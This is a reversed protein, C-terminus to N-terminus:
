AIDRSWKSKLPWSFRFIRQIWIKNFFLFYLYLNKKINIPSHYTFSLHIIPSHYTFSLHILPSHYTFSLHIIPSHYHFRVQRMEQIKQGGWFGCLKARIWRQPSRIFVNWRHVEFLWHNMCSIHLKGEPFALIAVTRRHQSPTM